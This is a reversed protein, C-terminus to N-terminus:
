IWKGEYYIKDCIVYKDLKSVFLFIEGIKAYISVKNEESATKIQKLYFLYDM